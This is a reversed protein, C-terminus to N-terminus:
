KIIPLVHNMFDWGKNLHWSKTTPLPLAIKKWARPTLGVDVCVYAGSM